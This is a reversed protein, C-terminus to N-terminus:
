IGRWEAGRGAQAGRGGDRVVSWDPLFWSTMSFLHDQPSLPRPPPSKPATSGTQAPTPATLHPPEVSPRPKRCAPSLWPGRLALETQTGLMWLQVCLETLSGASGPKGPSTPHHPTVSPGISPFQSAVEQPPRSIPHSPLSWPLGM